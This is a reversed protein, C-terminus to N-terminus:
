LQIEPESQPLEDPRAPLRGCNDEAEAQKQADGLEKQVQALLCWAPGLDPSLETALSLHKAADRWRHQQVELRGLHFQPEALRLAVIALKRFEKEAEATDKQRELTLALNFRPALYQPNVALARRFLDAARGLQHDYELAIIGLNNYGQAFEQDVHVAQQFYARAKAVDNRKLQILGCNTLIMPNQASYELALSCHSEATDLDGENVAQVLAANETECLGTCPWRPLCGVVMGMFASLGLLRRYM